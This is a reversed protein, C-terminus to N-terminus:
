LDSKDSLGNHCIENVKFAYQYQAVTSTQFQGRREGPVAEVEDAITGGTSPSAVCSRFLSRPLSRNLGNRRICSMMGVLRGTLVHLM